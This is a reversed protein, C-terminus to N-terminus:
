PNADLLSESLVRLVASSLNNLQSAFSIWFAKPSDCYQKLSRKGIDCTKGPESDRDLRIADILFLTEILVM